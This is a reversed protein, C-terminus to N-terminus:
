KEENIAEELKIKDNKIADYEKALADYEERLKNLDDM